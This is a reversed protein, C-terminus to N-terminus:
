SPPQSSSARWRTPLFPGNGDVIGVIWKPRIAYVVSDGVLMSSGYKTVYAADAAARGSADHLEGAAGEIIVAEEATETAVSCAPRDSLNLSKRTSRGTSFVLAGGAWVGWVPTLHPRGSGGATALWYRRSKALRAEAWRWPLLMRGESPPEYGPWPM